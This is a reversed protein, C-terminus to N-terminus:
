ENKRDGIEIWDVPQMKGDSSFENLKLKSPLCQYSPPNGKFERSMKRKVKLCDSPSEMPLYETVLGSVFLVLAFGTWIM